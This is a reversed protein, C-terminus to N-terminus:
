WDKETKKTKAPVQMLKVKELTKNEDNKMAELMREADQKSIQQPQAQQQQSQNQQQDQENQQQQQQQDQQQEQEKQQDQQQQQDKQEQDKKDQDQEKNQDQNQQQQEQQQMMKQAYALNYKADADHPNLRLSKKYTDIAEPFKQSKLYANGMNYLASAKEDTSLEKGAVNGYLKTADEFNEQKYLAGGLNYQGKVSEPSKELARMYDVEADKYNEEYYNNNGSRIHKNENQALASTTFILLVWVFKKLLGVLVFSKLYAPDKLRSMWKELNAEMHNNRNKM